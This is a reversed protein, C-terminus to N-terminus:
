YASTAPERTSTRSASIALEYARDLVETVTQETFREVVRPPAAAAMTSVLEPDAVLRAMRDALMSADGVPIVFACEGDAGVSAPL